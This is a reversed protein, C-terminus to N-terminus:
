DPQSVQYFNFGDVVRWLKGPVLEEPDRNDLVWGSPHNARLPENYAGWLYPPTPPASTPTQATGIVATDPETLSLYTDVVSVGPDNINWRESSGSPTVITEYKPDDAVEEIPGIALVQGFASVRRRRKDGAGARLGLAVVSVIGRSEGDQEARPFGEVFFTERPVPLPQEVRVGIVRLSTEYDPWVVDYELEIRDPQGAPGVVHLATGREFAGAPGHYITSQVPPM